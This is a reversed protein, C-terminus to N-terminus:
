FLGLLLQLVLTISLHVCVSLAPTNMVFSVRAPLCVVGTVVLVQTCSLCAPSPHMRGPLELTIPCHYFLIFLSRGKWGEGVRWLARRVPQQRDPCGRRPMM